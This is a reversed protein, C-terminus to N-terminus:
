PQLHSEAQLVASTPQEPKIESGTYSTERDQQVAGLQPTVRGM